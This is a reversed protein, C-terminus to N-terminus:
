TLSYADCHAPQVPVSLSVSVDQVRTSAGVTISMTGGGRIDGSADLCVVTVTAREQSSAHNLLRVRASPILPDQVFDTSVVEVPQSANEDTLWRVNMVRADFTAPLQRGPPIRVALAQKLAPEIRNIHGTARSITSGSTGLARIEIVVDAATQKSPNAVLAFAMFGGPAAAAGTKEVLLAPAQGPPVTPTVTGAVPSHAAAISGTPTLQGQVSPTGQCGILMLGFAITLM